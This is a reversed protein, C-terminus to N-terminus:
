KAEATNNGRLQMLIHKMRSTDRPILGEKGGEGNTTTTTHSKVTASMEKSSTLIMDAVVAWSDVGTLDVSSLKTKNNNTTQKNNVSRNVERKKEVKNIQLEHWRKLQKQADERQLKKAEKEDTRKRLLEAEHKEKWVRLASDNRVITEVGGGSTTVGSSSGNNNNNNNNNFTGIDSYLNNPEQQQGILPQSPTGKGEAIENWIDHNAGVSGGSGGGGFDGISFPDTGTPQQQQEGSIGSPTTATMMGNVAGNTGTSLHTTAATPQAFSAASSDVSGVIRDSFDFNGSGFDESM